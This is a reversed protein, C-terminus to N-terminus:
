EAAAPRSMTQSPVDGLAQQSLERETLEEPAFDDVAVAGAVAEAAAHLQAAEAENILKQRRAEDVDRIGAKHMREHLPSAALTLAFARELRSLGDDGTSHFIDVTLRERTASPSLLLQACAQTVHDSPGRRRVGFPLLLFRLLWAAPRSPLNALIEDLRREITAFGAQMSWEVLPLDSQQRGEDEWRKLVASLLYLESLIDGFRGSIMERRKLGASLTLLALDAAVAFAATYRALPKYFRSAKGADPVPTFLGGTWARVFARWANAFSHGLHGWFARDFEDLGRAPDPDELAAIEKLLYPHSRIAGQGFQILSRTVINAGEVTIGIPVARYFNGLYNLPGEQVGKGGHIDMADNAVIRLRETAQQKMIATIVAPTHGHDIASCTLRRAADILYATAAIRALREENTIPRAEDRRSKLSAIAPPLEPKQQANGLATAGLSALWTRRTM